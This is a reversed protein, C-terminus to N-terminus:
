RGVTRRGSGHAVQFSGVGHVCLESNDANVGTLQDGFGHQGDLRTGGDAVHGVRDVRMGRKGLGEVGRSFYMEAGRRIEVTGSTLFPPPNLTWSKPTSM